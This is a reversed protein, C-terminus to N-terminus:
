EYSAVELSFEGFNQALGGYPPRYPPPPPIAGKLILPKRNKKDMMKVLWVLTQGNYDKVMM